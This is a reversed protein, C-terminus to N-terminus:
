YEVTGDKLIRCGAPRICEPKKVVEKPTPYVKKVYEIKEQKPNWEKKPHQAIAYAIFGIAIILALGYLFLAQIGFVFLEYIIKFPTLIM